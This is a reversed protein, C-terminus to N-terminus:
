YIRGERYPIKELKGEVIIEPDPEDFFMFSLVNWATLLSKRPPHYSGGVAIQRDALDDFYEQFAAPDVILKGDALTVTVTLKHGFATGKGTVTQLVKCLQDARPVKTAAKKM